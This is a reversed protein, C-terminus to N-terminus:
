EQKKTKYLDHCDIGTYKKVLDRVENGAKEAMGARTELDMTEDQQLEWMKDMLASMFIKIAGRFGETTYEPKLGGAAEFEWLTQEIESLIPSIKQGIM